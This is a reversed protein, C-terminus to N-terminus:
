ALDEDILLQKCKLLAIRFQEIIEDVAAQAEIPGDDITREIILQDLMPEIIRRMRSVTILMDESSCDRIYSKLALEVVAPMISDHHSGASHHKWLGSDDDDAPQKFGLMLAIVANGGAKWRRQMNMGNAIIDLLM